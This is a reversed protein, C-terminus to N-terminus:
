VIWCLAWGCLRLVFRTCIFQNGDPEEYMFSELFFFSMPTFFLIMRACAVLAQSLTTLSINAVRAEHLCVSARGPEGRAFGPGVRESCRYGASSDITPLRNSVAWLRDNKKFGVNITNNGDRRRCLKADWYLGHGFISLYINNSVHSPPWNSEFRCGETLAFNLWAAHLISFSPRHEGCWTRTAFIDSGTRDWARCAVFVM